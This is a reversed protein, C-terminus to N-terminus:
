EDVYSKKMYDNYNVIMKKNDQELMVQIDTYRNPIQNNSRNEEFLQLAEEQTLVRM